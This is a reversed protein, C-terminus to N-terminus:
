CCPILDGGMCECCCDACILNTCCDCGDMGGGYSRYPNYQKGSQRQANNLANRYEPNTPEMRCATAFSTYAQDFWGRRYLVTGNLFYWEANRSQPPVGDLVEQAQELRGENILSRVEPFSSATSGEYSGNYTNKGRSRRSNMIFDYAENIEKMKEGALDSLPNDTYNDPHYKRALVRYADKIEDDTANKSVGLVSYPDKM